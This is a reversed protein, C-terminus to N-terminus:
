IAITKRRSLAIAAVTVAIAMIGTGMLLEQNILTFIYHLPDDEIGISPDHILKNTGFHPYTFNVNLELGVKGEETEIEMSKYAVTVDVFESTGNPWIVGAKKVWDVKIGISDLKITIKDEDIGASKLEINGKVNAEVKMLMALKSSNSTWTWRSVILDFKVEDAGGDVDFIVSSNGSVSSLTVSRQYVHMILTIEYETTNAHYTVTIITNNGETTKQYTVNWPINDFELTKLIKTNNFETLAFDKAEFEIETGNKAYQFEIKPEEKKFELNNDESIVHLNGNVDEETELDETVEEDEEETEHETEKAKDVINEVLDIVRDAQEEAKDALQEAEEYNKDEYTAKAQNLTNNAEKWLAEIDALPENGVEQKAKEIKNSAEQLKEEAERIAEQAQEAKEQEEEQKDQIESEKHESEDEENINTPEVARAVTLITGLMLVAVLTAVLIKKMM